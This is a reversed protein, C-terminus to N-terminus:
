FVLLKRVNEHPISIFCQSLIPLTVHIFFCNIPIRYKNIDVEMDVDYSSVQIKNVSYGLAM